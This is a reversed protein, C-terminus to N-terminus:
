GIAETTGIALSPTGKGGCGGDSSDHTSAVVVERQRGGVGGDSLILATPDKRRAVVRLTRKGGGREAETM